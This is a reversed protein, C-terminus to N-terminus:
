AMKVQFSLFRHSDTHTCLVVVSRKLSQKHGECVKSNEARIFKCSIFATIDEFMCFSIFKPKQKRLLDPFYSAFCAKEENRVLLM